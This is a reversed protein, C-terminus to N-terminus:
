EEYRRRRQSRSRGSGELSSRLCDFHFSEQEKEAEHTGGDPRRDCKRSGTLSLRRGDLRHARQVTVEREVGAPADRGVTELPAGRLVRRVLQRLEQLRQP